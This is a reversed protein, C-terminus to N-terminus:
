RMVGTTSANVRYSVPPLPETVVADGVLMYKTGDIRIAVFPEDRHRNLRRLFKEAVSSDGRWMPVIFLHNLAPRNLGIVRGTVVQSDGTSTSVTARRKTTEIPGPKMSKAYMAWALIPWTTQRHGKYDVVPVAHLLLVLLIFISIWVRSQSM